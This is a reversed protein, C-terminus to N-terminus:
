SLDHIIGGPGANIVLSEGLRHSQGSSGHIHGCVVLAPKKKEVM